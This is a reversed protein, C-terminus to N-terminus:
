GTPGLQVRWSTRGWRGGCRAQMQERFKEKEEPSMNKFREMRNHMWPTGGRHGKHGFGFLIKALVFLGMAQWFDITGTHLIDPLLHNWLQMVVYSVLALAGAALFPIFIFKKKFGARYRYAHDGFEHDRM